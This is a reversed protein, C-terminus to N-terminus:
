EQQLYNGIARKLAGVKDEYKTSITGKKQDYALGWSKGYELTYGQYGYFVYVLIGTKESVKKAKIMGDRVRDMQWGLREGSEMIAHEVQWSHKINTPTTARYVPVKSACSCCLTILVSSIIMWVFWRQAM